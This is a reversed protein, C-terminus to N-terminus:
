CRLIFVTASLYFANGIYFEKIFNICTAATQLSNQIEIRNVTAEEEFYSVRSILQTQFQTPEVLRPPNVKVYFVTSTGIQCNLGEKNNHKAKLIYHVM